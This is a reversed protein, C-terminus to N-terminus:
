HFNTNSKSISYLPAFPCGNSFKDLYSKNCLFSMERVMCIGVLFHSNRLSLYEVGLFKLSRIAADLLEVM